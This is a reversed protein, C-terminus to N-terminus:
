TKLTKFKSPHRDVLARLRKRVAAELDARVEAECVATVIGPRTREAYDMAFRRANAWNIVSM